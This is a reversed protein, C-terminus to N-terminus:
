RIDVLEIDGYGSGLYYNIVVDQHALRHWHRM